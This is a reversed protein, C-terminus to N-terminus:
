VALAAAVKGMVADLSAGIHSPQTITAASVGSGGIFLVRLKEMSM